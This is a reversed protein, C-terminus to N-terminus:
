VYRGRKKKADRHGEKIGKMLVKDAVINETEAPETYYGHEIAKLTTSLMFNSLTRRDKKASNLIAKYDEESMRITLTKM